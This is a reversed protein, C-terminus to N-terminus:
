GLKVENKGPKLKIPMVVRTQYSTSRGHVLTLELNVAKASPNVADFRFFAFRKWNKNNGTKSGFSDGKNFAVKLAKGGLEKSEVIEPFTKDDQGTDGPLQGASVNLLVAKQGPAGGPTAASWVVFGAIILVSPIIRRALM